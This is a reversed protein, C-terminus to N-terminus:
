LINAQYEPFHRLKLLVTSQLVQAGKKKTPNTKSLILKRHLTEYIMTKTKKKTM